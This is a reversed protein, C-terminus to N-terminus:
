KPRRNWAKIVEKKTTFGGSVGAGCYPGSEAYCGNCMVSYSSEKEDPCLHSRHSKVMELCVKPKRGGCFPCPKLKESM